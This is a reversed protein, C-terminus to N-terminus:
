NFDVDFQTLKFINSKYQIKRRTVQELRATDHETSHDFLVPTIKKPKYHKIKLYDIMKSPSKLKCHFLSYLQSWKTVLLVHVSNAVLFIQTFRTIYLTKANSFANHNRLIATKRPMECCCCFIVCLCGDVILSSREAVIFKGKTWDDPENFLLVILPFPTFLWCVGCVGVVLLLLLPAVADDAALLLPMVMWVANGPLLLKLTPVFAFWDIIESAGTVSGPPVVVFCTIWGIWCVMVCMYMCVSNLVSKNIEISNNNKNQIIKKKLNLCRLM